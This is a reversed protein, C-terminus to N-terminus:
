GHFGGVQRGWNRAAAYDFLKFIRERDLRPFAIGAARMVERTNRNDFMPNHVVRPTILHYRGWLLSEAQTYKDRVEDPDAFYGGHLGFYAEYCRKMMDNTPPEPNTLHYIRGHYEPRRIVAAIIKACFDVPVINQCDDPRGPIRLPIYTLEGNGPDRYREKLISVLRAFEYFGGFQTTYGTQSDGVLFSPRFLTLCHGIWSAWQELLMEAKYKSIEYDTQFEPAPVHFEERILGTNWGCTYATSVAFVRTVNNAITWDIIAETGAVNTQFPETNANTFLQLSAACHLVAYTHGWDPQPLPGPLAGEVPLLQGQKIPLSLDCGIARMMASLRSLSESLHPRLLVVMRQGSNLLERLVFHGLLGTAGTMLITPPNEIFSM